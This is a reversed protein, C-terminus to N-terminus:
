RYEGRKRKLQKTFLRALDMPLYDGNLIIGLHAGIEALQVAFDDDLHKHLLIVLDPHHLVEAALEQYDTPFFEYIIKSSM